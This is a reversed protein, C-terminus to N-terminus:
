EIKLLKKTEEIYNKMSESPYMKYTKNLQEMMNKYDGDSNYLDILLIQLNYNNSTELLEIIKSIFLKTKGNKIIFAKLYTLYNPLDPNTELIKVYSDKAKSIQNTKEYFMALNFLPNLNIPSYKLSFLYAKEAEIYNHQTLNIYGLSNWVTGYKPYINVAIQAHKKAKNLFTNNKSSDYKELYLSSMLENAKASKKLHEIDAEFLTQSNKWDFNRNISIILLPLIIIIISIYAKINIEFVNNKLKNIFNIKELILYIIKAVIMSFGLTGIFYFRDAIIGPLPLFINSVAASELLVLLIGFSLFVHTKFLKISLIFASIFLALSVYPFISSWSQLIVINYGYYYSLKTPVFFLKVYYFPVTLGTPIREIINSFYLPNEYYEFVRIQPTEIAIIQKTILLIFFPLFALIISVLLEKVIIKKYYFISVLPLIIAFVYFSKKTLIGIFLFIILFGLFYLKKFKLYKVYMILSLLGFLGVLLEDRSKINNVIETLLPHTIFISLFIILLFKNNFLKSLFYYVLCFILTILMLNIFHSFHPNLKGIILKEIAFSSILIPRYGFNFNKTKDSFSHTTFIEKFAPTSKEFVSTVLKDDISYKNFITNTYILVSLIIILFYTYKSNNENNINM